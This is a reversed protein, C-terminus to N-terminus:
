SLLASAGNLNLSFRVTAKVLVETPLNWGNLEQDTFDM